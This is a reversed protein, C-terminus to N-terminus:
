LMMMLEGSPYNPCLKRNRRLLKIHTINAVFWPIFNWESGDSDVSSLSELHSIKNVLRFSPPEVFVLCRGVAVLVTFLALCGNKKKCTCRAKQVKRQRQGKNCLELFFEGVNSLIFRCLILPIFMSVAHIWKKLSTKAGDDDDNSLSILKGRPVRVHTNLM